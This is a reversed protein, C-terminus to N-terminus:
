QAIQESQRWAIAFAALSTAVLLTGVLLMAPRMVLNCSGTMSTCVGILYTPLLMVVIGLLAGIIGLSRVADRRRTSALAVGVGLIPLALGLEARATWYCRMPVQRGDALTLSKGDHECNYFAPVIAVLLGLVVIAIGIVRM